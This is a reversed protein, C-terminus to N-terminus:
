RMDNIRTVNIFSVNRMDANLATLQIGRTLECNLIKINSITVNEAEAVIMASTEGKLAGNSVTINDIILNVKNLFPKTVKIIAPKLFYVNEYLM